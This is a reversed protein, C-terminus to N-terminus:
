LDDVLATSRYATGKTKVQTAIWFLATSFADADNEEDFDYILSQKELQKIATEYNNIKHGTEKLYEIRSKRATNSQSSRAGSGSSPTPTVERSSNAM